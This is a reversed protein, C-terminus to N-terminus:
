KEWLPKTKSWRIWFGRVLDGLIKGLVCLPGSAVGGILCVQFHLFNVSLYAIVKENTVTKLLIERIIHTYQVTILALSFPFFLVVNEFPEGALLPLSFSLFCNLWKIFAGSSDPKGQTTHGHQKLPFVSFTRQGVVTGMVRGVSTSVGSWSWESTSGRELVWFHQHTQSGQKAFLCQSLFFASFM